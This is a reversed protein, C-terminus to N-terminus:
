KPQKGCVCSCDRGICLLCWKNAGFRDIFENHTLAESPNNRPVETDPLGFLPSIDCYESLGLGRYYDPQEFYLIKRDHRRYTNVLKWWLFKREVVVEKYDKTTTVSLVRM